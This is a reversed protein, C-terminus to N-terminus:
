SYNQCFLTQKTKCIQSLLDSNNIHDEYNLNDPMNKYYPVTFTFCNLDLVMLLIDTLRGNAQHISM